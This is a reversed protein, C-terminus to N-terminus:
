LRLDQVRQEETKQWARKLNLIKMRERQYKSILNIFIQKIEQLALASSLFDLKTIVNSVIQASKELKSYALHRDNFRDGYAEAILKPIHKALNYLIAAEIQIKQRNKLNKPLELQFIQSALETTKQYIELDRFSRINGRVRFKRYELGSKSKSRYNDFFM